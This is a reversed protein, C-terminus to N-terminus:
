AVTPGDSRRPTQACRKGSRALARASSCSGGKPHSSLWDFAASRSAVPSQMIAAHAQCSRLNSGSLARAECPSSVMRSSHFARRALRCGARLLPRGGGAGLPASDSDEGAKQEARGDPSWSPALAAATPASSDIGPPRAEPARSSALSRLANMRPTRFLAYPHSPKRKPTASRQPTGITTSEIAESVPTRRM